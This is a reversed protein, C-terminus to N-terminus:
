QYYKYLAVALKQMDEETSGNRLSTYVFTLASVKITFDKAATVKVTQADGLRHASIGDIQVVYTGNPQRVAMNERGGNLSAFVNGTYSSDMTFTLMITTESALSLSYQVGSIGTGAYDDRVAKYADIVSRVSEIDDATYETAADIAIHKVGLQWNNM